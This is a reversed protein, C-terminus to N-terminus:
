GQQVAEEELLMDLPGLDMQFFPHQLAQAATLREAPRYALLGRVLGALSGVYPRASADSCTALLEELPLLKAVVRQSKKSEAGAPWNLRNSRTFYPRAQADATAAMDAPIPGLVQPPSAPHFILSPDCVCAQQTCSGLDLPM